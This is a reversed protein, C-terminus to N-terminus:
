GGVPSAWLHVARDEGGSALVNGVPSWELCTVGGGHAAEVAALLAGTGADLFHIGGADTAGALVRGTSDLALRRYAQGSPLPAPARFVCVAPPGAGEADHKTWRTLRFVAVRGDRCSTAAATGDASFTVALVQGAHGVLAPGKKLAVPNGARDRLVAFVKVDPAFTAAAVWAGDSSVAVDHTRIGSTDISALRAPAGGSSSGVAFVELATKESAVALVGRGGRVGLARQGALFDASPPLGWVPAAGPGFATLSDLAGGRTLVVVPSDSAGGTFAVGVVASGVDRRAPPSPRGGPAPVHFLRVARDAAATALRAGDVSFALGLVGDGHGKLTAQHLGSAALRTAPIAAPGAWAGGRAAAAARNLSKLSVGATASAAPPSSSSPPPPPPPAAVKRSPKAKAKTAKAPPPPPPSAVRKVRPAPLTSALASALARVARLVILVVSLAPSLLSPSPPPSCTSFFHAAAGPARKRTFAGRAVGRRRWAVCAGISAVVVRAPLSLDAWTPAPMTFPPACGAARPTHAIIIPTLSFCSAGDDGNAKVEEDKRKRRERRLRRMTRALLKSTRRTLTLRTHSGRGGMRWRTHAVAPADGAGGWARGRRHRECIPITKGEGCAKLNARYTVM